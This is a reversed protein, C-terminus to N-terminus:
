GAGTLPYRHILHFRGDAPEGFLCLSHVRFPAPLVPAIMPRLARAVMAAEDGPLNGTLTIHFRFEGLVYPYGWTALNARQPPTLRDPRRRAIEAATPAARFRDLGTVAAGALQGLAAADGRPTLALFGGLRHLGLGPLTVPALGACLAGVARHLDDARMAEALRFPPKITGHLGYKRPTETIEALPRPLGPVDPPLASVRRLADWGLWAAGFDAFAGPEPAYYIAFRRFDDM